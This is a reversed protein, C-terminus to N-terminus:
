LPPRAQGDSRRYQRQRGRFPDNGADPEPFCRRMEMAESLSTGRKLEALMERYIFRVSEPVGEEDVLIELGRVISVGSTLLASMERCFEAIQKSSLMHQEKVESVNKVKILYLGQEKLQQQLANESVAEMRGRLVRGEMNKAAYQYQAM